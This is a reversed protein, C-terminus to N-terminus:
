ISLLSSNAPSRSRRDAPRAGSLIRGAYAGVQRWLGALSPAYSCLGGLVVSERWEHMAPMAHRAALAVMQERRGHFLRDAAILVAGAPLGALAAFAADIESPDTARLIPLQVGRQRAVSEVAPIWDNPAEPNVLLAITQAQFVLESLLELRKPMLEAIMYTFGTLNSGPRALSAVIGKRVLDAGGSFLVPITSTANTAALIVNTGGIAIILSVPRRVLIAALAPLQDVREAWLYEIAMNQGVVYGADRLSAEVAAVWSAYEAASGLGLVGIVPM